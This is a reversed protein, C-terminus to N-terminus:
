RGYRKEPMPMVTQDQIWKQVEIPDFKVLRGIKKHGIKGQGVWKYLTGETVSLWRTAEKVDILRNMVVQTVKM